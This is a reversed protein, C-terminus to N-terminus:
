TFSQDRDKGIFNEVQYVLDREKMGTTDLVVDSVDRLESM